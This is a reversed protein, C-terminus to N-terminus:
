PTKTKPEKRSLVVQDTFVKENDAYKLVFAQLEKTSGTIVLREGVSTHEV